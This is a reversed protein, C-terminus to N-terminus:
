KAGGTPHLIKQLDRCLGDIYSASLLAMTVETSVSSVIMWM